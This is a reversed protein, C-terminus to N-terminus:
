ARWDTARPQGEPVHRPTCEPVDIGPDPVLGARVLNALRRPRTASINSAVAAHEPAGGAGGSAAVGGVAAGGVAADGVAVAGLAVAEVLSSGIGGVADGYSAKGGPTPL